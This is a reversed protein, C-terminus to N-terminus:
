VTSFLAALDESTTWCGAFDHCSPPAPQSEFVIMFLPCSDVNVDDTAAAACYFVKVSMAARVFPVTAGM